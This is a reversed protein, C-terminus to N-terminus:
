EYGFHNRIFTKLGEHQKNLPMLYEGMFERTWWDKADVSDTFRYQYRDIKLWKPPERPFPSSEILGVAKEDNHLLKYVFHV